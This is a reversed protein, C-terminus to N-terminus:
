NEDVEGELCVRTPDIFVFRTSNVFCFAKQLSKSSVVRSDHARLKYIGLNIGYNEKSLNLRFERNM